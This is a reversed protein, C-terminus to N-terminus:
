TLPPSGHMGRALCTRIRLRGWKPWSVAACTKEAVLVSSL